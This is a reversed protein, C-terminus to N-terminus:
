AYRVLDAKESHPTNSFARPTIRLFFTRKVENTGHKIDSVEM